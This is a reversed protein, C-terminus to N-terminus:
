NKNALRAMEEAELRAWFEKGAEKMDAKLRADAEEFTKLDYYSFFDDCTLTKWWKSVVMVGQNDEKHVQLAKTGKAKRYILTFELDTVDFNWWIMHIDGNSATLVQVSYTKILQTYIKHFNLFDEQTFHDFDNIDTNQLNM